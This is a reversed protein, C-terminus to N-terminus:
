GKFEEGEKEALEHQRSLRELYTGIFNSRNRNEHKALEDIRDVLKEPLSISIQTM